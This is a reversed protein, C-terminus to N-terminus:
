GRKKKDSPPYPTTITRFAPKAPALNTQPKQVMAPTPPMDQAEAPRTPTTNKPVKASMKAAM